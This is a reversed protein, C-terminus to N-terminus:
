GNQGEAKTAQAAAPDDDIWVGYHKPINRGWEGLEDRRKLVSEHLIAGEEIPRSAAFPITWGFISWRKSGPRKRRPILELLAWYWAMSNHRAALPDRSVYSEEGYKNWVITNVTRTFFRVGREGMRGIMWGLAVKCLASEREEFGGGIDAHYGAFWVEEVQQPVGNGNDFPSAHYLNGKPWNTLNFMTRREDIACAHVVAQVSPNISTFAHHKLRWGVAAREIVSAVTDFLGLMRIAPRQTGIVREFQRMEAYANQSNQRGEGIRKYARYAYELLNLNRPEILGFANIFGALVRATYAGRSFGIIYIQDRVTGSGDPKAGYTRYNEVLFRYAQKVNADLGWGTALGLVLKIKTTFRSFWHEAAFTGVGPDYYVLQQEDKKLTRYLRLVNSRRSSIQNSTGDLLIVITKPM